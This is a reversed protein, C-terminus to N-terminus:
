TKYEAYKKIQVIFTYNSESMSASVFNLRKASM